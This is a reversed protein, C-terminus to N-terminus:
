IEDKWATVYFWIFMGFAFLTFVVGVWPSWLVAFGSVILFLVGILTEVRLDKIRRLVDIFSM